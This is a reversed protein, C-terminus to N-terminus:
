RLRNLYAHIDGLDKATLPPVSMFNGPKLGQPDAIWHGLSPGDNPLLAAALTRRTM